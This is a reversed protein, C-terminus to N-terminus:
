HTAAYADRVETAIRGRESIDWGKQRAWARIEAASVSRISAAKSGTRRRRAGVRRASEVFPACADRMKKANKSSLDIEYAVGDFSFSVTENAKGGDLDDQLITQVRQVM